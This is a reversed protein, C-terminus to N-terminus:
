WTPPVSYLLKIDAYLQFETSLVPISLRQCLLLMSWLLMLFMKNMTHKVDKLKNSTVWSVRLSTSDIFKLNM